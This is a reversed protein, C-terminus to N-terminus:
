SEVADLDTAAVENLGVLKRVLDTDDPLVAVLDHVVAAVVGRKHIPRELHQARPRLAIVDAHAEARIDLPGPDPRVLASVHLHEDRALHDRRRADWVLPLGM